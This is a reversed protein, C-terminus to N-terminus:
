NRILSHLKVKEADLKSFYGGEDNRETIVTLANFNRGTAFNSAPLSAIM